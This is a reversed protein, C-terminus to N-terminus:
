RKKRNPGSQNRFELPTMGTNKKFFTFFYSENDFGISQSVDSITISRDFKSLLAKAQNVRCASIFSHVTSRTFHKFDRDLKSRSINFMDALKASDIAEYYHEAVYQIVDQIYFSSTGVKLASDSPCFSFLRNLFLVTLLARESDNMGDFMELIRVLEPVQDRELRFLLGTNKLEMGCPLLSKDFHDLLKEDFYLVYRDFSGLGDSKCSMAHITYPASIIVSPYRYSYNKGNIVTTQEVAETCFYVEYQPHAHANNMVAFGSYHHMQIYEGIDSYFAEYPRQQSRQSENM